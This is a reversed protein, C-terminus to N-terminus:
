LLSGDARQHDIEYEIQEPHVNWADISSQKSTTKRITYFDEDIICM